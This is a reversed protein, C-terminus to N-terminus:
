RGAVRAIVEVPAVVLNDVKGAAGHRFPGLALGDVGDECELAQDGLLEANQHDAFGGFLKQLRQPVVHFTEYTKHSRSPTTCKGLRFESASLSLGRFPEVPDQM